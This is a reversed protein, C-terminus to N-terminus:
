GRKGRRPRSTVELGKAGRWRRGCAREGGTQAEKGPQAARLKCANPTRDPSGRRCSQASRSRYAAGSPEQESRTPEEMSEEGARTGCSAIPSGVAVLNRPRVPERARPRGRVENGRAGGRCAEDDVEGAREGKGALRGGEVALGEGDSCCTRRARGRCIQACRRQGRRM